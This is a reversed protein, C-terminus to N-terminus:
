GQLVKEIEDIDAQATELVRLTMKPGLRGLSFKTFAPVEGIGPYREM